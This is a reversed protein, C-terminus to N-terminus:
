AASDRLRVALKPAAFVALLGVLCGLAFVIPAGSSGDVGNLAAFANALLGAAFGPLLVCSIAGCAYAIMSGKRGRVLAIAAAVGGAIVFVWAGIALGEPSVMLHGTPSRSSLDLEFEAPLLPVMVVAYLLQAVLALLLFFGAFYSVVRVIEPTPKAATSM